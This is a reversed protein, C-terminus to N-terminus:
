PSSILKCTGNQTIKVDENSTTLPPIDQIQHDLCFQDRFFENFLIACKKPDETIQNKDCLLSIPSMSTQQRM